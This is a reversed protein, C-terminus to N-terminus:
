AGCRGDVCRTACDADDVCAQGAACAACPGGCDRDSEFGDRVGDDCRPAPCTGGPCAAAQCDNGAVCALGGACAQCGGGCDVDTEDGDRVRDRCPHAPAGTACRGTPCPTLHVAVGLSVVDPHAGVARPAYREGDYLQVDATVLTAIISQDLEADTMAGDRDLDVGRLFAQHRDPETAFMQRLGAYAAARADAQRVGGRVLGDFGGRGDPVLDVELGVTPLAVPDANTFVPLRLVAAGPHRTTATRNSRFRGGVLAGGVLTAADGDAGLYRLAVTPDDAADDAVLEVTSALAGAVIMDGGDVSLDHGVALLATIVGLQDDVAGDGDLDDGLAMAAATDAPLTVADVVYRRTTGTYPGTVDDTGDGAGGCAALALLVLPVRPTM